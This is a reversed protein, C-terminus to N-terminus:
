RKLLDVGFKPQIAGAGVFLLVVLLLPALPLGGSPFFQEASVVATPSTRAAVVFGTFGGMGDAVRPPTTVAVSSPTPTPTGGTQGSDTPSPTPTPPSPLPSPNTNAQTTTRIGVRIDGTRTNQVLTNNAVVNGGTNAAVDYSNQIRANRTQTTSSNQTVSTTNSNRSDPGTNANSNAATLPDSQNVVPLTSGTNVETDSALSLAIDGTGTNTVTTNGITTNQGTNLDLTYNNTVSGNDTSTIRLSRNHIVTNNNQSDPGTRTNELTVSDAYTFPPTALTPVFIGSVLMVIGASVGVYKRNIM